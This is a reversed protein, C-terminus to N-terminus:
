DDLDEGSADLADKRSLQLRGQNDVGLLRVILEDGERAVRDAREVRNPALESIHVLGEAGGLIRVFAGFDKVSVVRGRYLHGVRPDGVLQRVRKRAAQTAHSDSAFVCVLGSEDVTIRAGTEEQIAQITQGRPGILEGLRERRIRLWAMRPAHASLKERPQPLTKAMEGLVHLRAEHAQQLAKAMVERSLGGVKNDMQLATVGAATGTVKFDMDGLHDEEGLIDTIIAHRDGEQILGMAIGAVPKSIPVGADMLALSAGCTTAMSSSGNSESIDSEIRITYPFKDISPVVPSLARRALSGHGIERRGPGRLPRVEGVSYPPFNYHLIFNERTEGFLADVRQGEEIPALTCTVIAQTEGRTFLGSGHTRPLWGVECDIERVDVLRRADLRRGQELIMRRVLHHYAEDFLEGAAAARAADDPCLESVIEQRLAAVGIRREQKTRAELASPLRAAARESVAAQLAPDPLHDVVVRKPKGLENRWSDLERRLPALADEAAFLAELVEDDPVERAGGEVMTLGHPASSVVLDLDGQDREAPTPLLVFRGAVRSLRLGAAPGDWPIDSLHLAASAGLIALVGTDVASEASLVVAAVQTECCFAKPFLPRISRDILRSTLVEHDTIRGERKIYGSPLRGVAAYKERYEVTLPFFGSAERTSDAAVATVLVVTDGQRVLVAGNAQRAVRGAELVIEHPGLSVSRTHLPTRM